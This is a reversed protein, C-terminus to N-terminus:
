EGINYRSHQETNLVINGSNDVTETLSVIEKKRSTQSVDALVSFFYYPCNTSVCKFPVRYWLLMLM